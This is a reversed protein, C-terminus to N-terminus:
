WEAGASDLEKLLFIEVRGGSPKHAWLRAPIVRTDNAVLLDGPHLYDGIDRFYRHEIQGTTRDFVLLRSSDRPEAPTQAIADSPLDYDFLDSKMSAAFIGARSM